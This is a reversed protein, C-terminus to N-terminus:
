LPRAENVVKERFIPSLDEPTRIDVKCALLEQLEVEANAFDFISAGPLDDVLLDLDSNEDDDGHLVSGFLRINALPYKALIALIDDKHRALIESPRVKAPMEFLPSAVLAPTQSTEPM